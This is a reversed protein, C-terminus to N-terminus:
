VIKVCALLMANSRVALLTRCRNQSESTEPGPRVRDRLQAASQKRIASV